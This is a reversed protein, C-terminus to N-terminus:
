RGGQRPGPGSRLMARMDQLSVASEARLALRPPPKLAHGYVIEFTLALRGGHAASALHALLAAELRTKWRPTRLGAYRRPHLNVGLERLEQLLRAPTEWTLVVREMDMVPEAFGAGVLMDGWDHMDTFAHGPPSWGLDAYLGHLEHLTDPGLASFMLFGDAALSRHWEALLAQPTATMHLAMNAWLMQVQADPPTDFRPVAGRWREIRWWPPDLARRAQDRLRSQPEIVWAQAAPYRRAVLAHGELGGRVPAWHAWHKPQLKIWQLREQMRRAVEEHLWPSQAPAARAWHAAAVPDITPPPTETMPARMFSAHASYISVM